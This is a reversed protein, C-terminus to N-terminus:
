RKRKWNEYIQPYFSVSWALFYIWGVISSILNLADYNYVTIRVFADRLSFLLCALITILCLLRGTFRMQVALVEVLHHHNM